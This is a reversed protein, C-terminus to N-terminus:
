QPLARVLMSVIRAAAPANDQRVSRRYRGVLQAIQETLETLEEATVMIMTENIVTAERWDDPEAEYQHRWRTLREQSRALLLDLLQEKLAKMEQDDDADTDVEIHTEGPGRYVRERGDGRSPADHIIGAKALARLHYSTASPSLGAVEAAETATIERSTSGLYELIALRAPHALARIVSPDTIKHSTDGPVSSYYTASRRIHALLM